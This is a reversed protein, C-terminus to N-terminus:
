KTVMVKKTISGNETSVQVFYAGKAQNTLNVSTKNGSVNDSAIVNGLINMVTYNFNDTNAIMIEFIGNTPNPFISTSNNLAEEEDISVTCVNPTKPTTFDAQDFGVGKLFHWQAPGTGDFLTGGSIDTGYVIPLEWTKESGNEIADVALTQYGAIYQANTGTSLNTYATWNGSSIDHGVGYVDPFERENLGNLGSDDYLWTYFVKSGDQSRGAQPRVFHSLNNTGDYTFNDNYVSDIFTVDWSNGNTAVEYLYKSQYAAFSYNLSDIHESFGSSIEAFIRLEDNNDVVIDYSSFFPRQINQNTNLGWIYCQMAANTSFDYDAFQTWTDGGDTTKLVYPRYMTNQNSNSDAGMIVVYGINGNPAWAMNPLGACNARVGGLSGDGSTQYWNPTITDVTWDFKNTSSNFVGRNIYYDHYLSPVDFNPDESGAAGQNNWNTSVYFAEGNATVYLGAAGWENPDGTTAVTSSFNYTEDLDSGDLKASARFTKAWGNNSAATNHLSPGAQVIYANATDTNGSPNYIGINPYRNGNSLGGDMNPTTQYPNTTWTSGGDTSYDLSIIGSGGAAGNNQRHVFAVTNIDPNYVVQNQRDGLISFVNYSTGIAITSPAKANPVTIPKSPVQQSEQDIRAQGDHDVSVAKSRDQAQLSVVLGLASALLLNKKM